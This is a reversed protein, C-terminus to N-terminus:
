RLNTDLWLCSTNLSSNSVTVTVQDRYRVCTIDWESQREYGWKMLFVSTHEAIAVDLAPLLWM